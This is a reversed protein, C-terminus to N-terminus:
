DWDLRVTGLAPDPTVRLVLGDGEVQYFVLPPAAADLVPEPDPDGNGFPCPGYPLDNPPAFAVDNAARPDVFLGTADLSDATARYLCPEPAGCNPTVVSAENAPSAGRAALPDFDAPFVNGAQDHPVVIVFYETDAELGDIDVVVPDSLAGDDMLIITDPVGPDSADFDTNEYPGGATLGYYVLYHRMREPAPAASSCRPLQDFTVTIRRTEPTPCSAELGPSPPEVSRDTRKFWPASRGDRNDLWVLYVDSGDDATAPRRAAGSLRESVCRGLGPEVVCNTLTDTTSVTPDDPRVPAFAPADVDVPVAADADLVAGRAVIERGGAAVSQTWFTWSPQPENRAAGPLVSTALGDERFLGGSPLDQDIGWRPSPATPADQHQADLVLLPAPGRAQFLAVGHWPPLAPDAALGSDIAVPGSIGLGAQAVLAPSGEPPAGTSSFTSGSDVSRLYLVQNMEPVSWAVNVAADIGGSFLDLSVRPDAQRVFLGASTPLPRPPEWASGDGSLDRSHVIWEEDTPAIQHWVAHFETLGTGPHRIGAIDPLDGDGASLETRGIALNLDLLARCGDAGDLPITTADHLVQVRGRSEHIVAIAVTPTPGDFAAAALAIDDEPDFLSELHVPPCFSCGGDFSASLQLAGEFAIPPETWAVLVITPLGERPVVAVDVDEAQRLPAVPADDWWWRPEARSPVALVLSALTAAALLPARPTTM